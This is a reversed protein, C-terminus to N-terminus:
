LKTLPSTNLTKTVPPSMLDIQSIFLRFGGSPHTENDYTGPPLSIGALGTALTMVNTTQISFTL